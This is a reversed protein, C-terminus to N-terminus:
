WPRYSRRDHHVADVLRRLEVEAAEFPDGLVGIRGGVDRDAGGKTVSSPTPVLM